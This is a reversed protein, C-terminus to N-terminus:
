LNRCSMCMASESCVKEIEPGYNDCSYVVIEADSIHNRMYIDVDRVFDCTKRNNCNTCIGTINIVREKKDLSM